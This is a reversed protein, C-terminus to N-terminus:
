QMHHVRVCSCVCVGSLCVIKSLRWSLRDAARCSSLERKDQSVPPPSILSHLPLAPSVPSYLMCLYFVGCSRYLQVRCCTSIHCYPPHDLLLQILFQSVDNVGAPFENRPRQFFLRRCASRYVFAVDRDNPSCCEDRASRDVTLYNHQPM